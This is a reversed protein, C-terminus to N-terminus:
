INWTEFRVRRVLQLACVLQIYTFDEDSGEQILCFCDVYLEEGEVQIYEGMPIYNLFILLPGEGLELLREM